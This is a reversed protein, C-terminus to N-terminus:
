GADRLRDMERAIAAETLTERGYADAGHAALGIGWGLTPFIPWPFWAGSFVGSVLWICWLFANVSVFSALHVRFERQKKLRRVAVARLDGESGSPTFVPERERMEQNTM